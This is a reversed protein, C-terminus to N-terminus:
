LQYGWATVSVVGGTGPAASVVAIATNAASAPICRTIPPETVGVGSSGAATFQTFNLTGTVTGTVTANGTAAATANARISFGCLFTTKSAAAALTATTAATTGTASATIPNAAATANAPYDSSPITPVSNGIAAAGLTIIGPSDPRLDVVLAPNTATVPATSVAVVSAKNSAGVGDIIYSPLPVGSTVGQVGQASTASAGAATVEQNASTAAGTPLPLSANSVPVPTGSGVGQVSLVTAAPSGATGQVSTQNAATAVGSVTVAPTNTIFANVGPVLVAGPSTGYNAMAGLTGGAWTPISVVWPSTGQTVSSSGGGGGSGSGVITAAPVADYGVTITGTGGTSVRLRVDSAGAVDVRFAGDAAVTTFGTTSGGPLAYGNVAVWTKTASVIAQSDTSEEITITAGSATLGSVYFGVVTEGNLVLNIKSQAVASLSAASAKVGQEAYAEPLGLPALCGIVAGILATRFIRRFDM